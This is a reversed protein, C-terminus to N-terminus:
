LLGQKRLTRMRSIAKFHEVRWRNNRVTARVMQKVPAEAWLVVGKPAGTFTVGVPPKPYSGLKTTSRKLLTNAVACLSFQCSTSAGSRFEGVYVRLMDHAQSEVFRPWLKPSMWPSVGRLMSCCSNPSSPSM